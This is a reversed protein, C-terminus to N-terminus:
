VKYLRSALKARLEEIDDLIQQTREIVRDDPCGLLAAIKDL